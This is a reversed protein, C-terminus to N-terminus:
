KPQRVPPESQQIALRNKRNERIRKQKNSRVENRVLDHKEKQEPTMVAQMSTATENRLAEVRAQIQKPSLNDDQRIEKLRAYEEVLLPRIRNQQETTLKLGKALRTLQVEPSPMMQENASMNKRVSTSVNKEKSTQENTEAMATAALCCTLTAAILVALIRKM